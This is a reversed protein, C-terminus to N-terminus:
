KALKFNAVLQNLKKATIKLKQCDQSTENLGESNCRSVNAIASIHPTIEGVVNSQEETASAIQFNMESIQNMNVVIQELHEGSISAESLSTDSMEVSKAISNVVIQTQEKLKEITTKIEETSDHSRSALTRVEDAVVAFGRGQEGARAAEIAANLALLNTQDSVSRIVELVSDIADTENVLQTVLKTTDALQSTTQNVSELTKIVSQTGQTARKEAERSGDAATQANSAIEKATAGMEDIATAVQETNSTQGSLESTMQETKKDIYSISTLLEDGVSCVQKLVDSLYEVFNNYGTAMRGVEDNRKDDLRITLDGGGKGIEELLLAMKNFPSILYNVIVTVLILFVIAIILGLVILTYTLSNLETFVEEESIDAIIYWDLDALYSAAVISSAGDQATQYSQYNSKTLLKEKNIGKETFYNKGIMNKDPHVTVVGEGNILFVEGTEGIKYGQILDRVNDVAFGVGAIAKFQGNDIVKYNVFLTMQQNSSDVDMVVAFPLLGNKFEYFWSSDPDGKMVTTLIGDATYYNGTADSIYFATTADFEKKLQALYRTMQEINQEGDQLFQKNDTNTAMVRSVAIPIQLDTNISNAIEGIASPLEKELTNTLIINRGSWISVSSIVTVASLIMIATTLVVKSRIDLQMAYRM